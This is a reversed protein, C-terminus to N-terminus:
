RKKSLSRFASMQSRHIAQMDAARTIASGVPSVFVSLEAFDDGEPMLLEGGIAGNSVSVGGQIDIDVHAIEHPRLDRDGPEALM